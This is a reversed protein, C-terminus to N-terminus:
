FSLIFEAKIMEGWRESHARMLWATHLGCARHINMRCSVSWKAPRVARRVFIVSDEVRQQLLCRSMFSNFIQSMSSLGSVRDRKMVHRQTPPARHSFTVPLTMSLASGDSLVWARTESQKVLMTHFVDANIFIMKPKRLDPLSLHLFVGLHPRADPHYLDRM